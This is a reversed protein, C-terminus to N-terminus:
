LLSRAFFGLLYRLAEGTTRREQCRGLLCTPSAMPTYTFLGPQAEGQHNVINEITSSCCINISVKALEHEEDVKYVNLFDVYKM